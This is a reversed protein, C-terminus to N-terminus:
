YLGIEVERTEDNVSLVIYKQNRGLLFEHEKMGEFTDNLLVGKTGKPTRITIKYRGTADHDFGDKFREATEEQLSTSTYGKFKGTEGVKMGTPFDGYRFLTADFDLPPSKDIASDLNEMRMDIWEDVGQSKRSKYYDTDYIRGNVLKYEQCAFNNVSGFENPTYDVKKQLKDQHMEMAGYLVKNNTADRVIGWSDMIEEEDDIILNPTIVIPELSINEVLYKDVNKHFRRLIDKLSCKRTFNDM